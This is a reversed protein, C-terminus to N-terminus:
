SNLIKLVEVCQKRLGNILEEYEPRDKIEKLTEIYMRSFGSGRGGSIDRHDIFPGSEPIIKDLVNTQRSTVYKKGWGCFPCVLWRDDHMKNNEKNKLNESTIIYM